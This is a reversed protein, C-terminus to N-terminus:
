GGVGNESGEKACGEGEKGILHVGIKTNVPGRRDRSEEGQCAHRKGEDKPFVAGLNAGLALEGGLGCADQLLHAGVVTDNVLALGLVLHPICIPHFSQDLRHAPLRSLTHAPCSLSARRGRWWRYGGTLLHLLRKRSILILNLRRLLLNSPRQGM